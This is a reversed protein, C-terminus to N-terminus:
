PKPQRNYPTNDLPQASLHSCRAFHPLTAEEPKCQRGICFGIHFLETIGHWYYRWGFTRAGVTAGAKYSGSAVASNACRNCFLITLSPVFGKQRALIKAEYAAYFRQKRYFQVWTQYNYHIFPQRLYGESGGVDVIEHVEREAVYKAKDRQLLRLQYDPSFGGAKM